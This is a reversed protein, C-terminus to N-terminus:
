KAFTTGHANSFLIEPQIERRRKNLPPPPIRRRDDMWKRHWTRMRFLVAAFVCLELFFMFHIRNPKSKINVAFLHAAAALNKSFSMRPDTLTYIYYNRRHLWDRKLHIERASDAGGYHRVRASPVLVVKKGSYRIRRCYDTEEWFIFFHPNLPGVTEVVDRRVMLFSGEVWDVEVPVPSQARMEPILHPHKGKMYYNPEEGSWSLFAPGAVGIQSDSRVARMLESLCGPELLIDNNAWVVWECGDAFAHPMAVNYAMVYGLNDPMRIVTVEPYDQLTAEVSGDSSSNDVLYVRVNPYGNRRISEYLPPLWRRGNRNLIMLGIASESEPM